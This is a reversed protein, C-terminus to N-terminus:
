KEYKMSYGAWPTLDTRLTLIPDVIEHWEEESIEAQSDSQTHDIFYYRGDCGDWIEIEYIIDGNEDIADIAIRLLLSLLPPPNLRYLVLIVVCAPQRGDLLFVRHHATQIQRVATM